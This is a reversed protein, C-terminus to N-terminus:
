DMVSANSLLFNSMTFTDWYLKTCNCNKNISHDGFGPADFSKRICLTSIFTTDGIDVIDSYIKKVIKLSSCNM